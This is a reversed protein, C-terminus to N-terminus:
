FPNVKTDEAISQDFTHQKLNFELVPKDTEAFPMSLTITARGRNVDEIILQLHELTAPSNGSWFNPWIVIAAKTTKM